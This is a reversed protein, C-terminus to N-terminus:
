RGGRRADANGEPTAMFGCDIGALMAIAHSSGASSYTLSSRRMHLYGLGDSM